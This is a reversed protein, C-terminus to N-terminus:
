PSPFFWRFEKTGDGQEVDSRLTDFRAEYTRDFSADAVSIFPTNAVSSGGSLASGAAQAPVDIAKGEVVGYLFVVTTLSAAAPIGWDKPVYRKIHKDKEVINTRESEDFPRYGSM